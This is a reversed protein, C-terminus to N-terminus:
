RWTQRAAKELTPWLSTWCCQHDVGPVVVVRPKHAAPFRAVYSQVATIGVQNDEGGVFHVQPVRQLAPWSDAPNLSGWLPTLQNQQTWAQHDLNAAVTILGAIDQRQAALLAAIAGGGSYGVLILQRAHFQQKLQDLAQSVAGIVEPAFRHSTWYKQECRANGALEFQCPRSLYAAPGPDQLALTLSLPNLPTPDFSPTDAALWALGDGELYVTLTPTPLVSAPLYSRLIFEDTRLQIAHWGRSGALQAALQSREDVTPIHMCSTLLGMLLCGIAPPMWRDFGFRTNRRM